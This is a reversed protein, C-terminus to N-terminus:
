EPTQEARVNIAAGDTLFGAGDVVVTEDGRLGDVIEVLGDQQIGTRVARAEASAGAVVYVVKGGPRQVVSMAPVLLAGERKALTVSGNVSAGPRWGGPNAFEAIVIIARAAGIMPRIEAIVGEVMRDPVAPSSLEVPLGPRLLEAVYEPFPLQARLVDNTAIRFLPTGVAAWDGVDILRTELRGALPAVIRTRAIDREAQGLATREGELQSRLARLEAEANDVVSQAVLQRELMHRNREVQRQQNEILAELRAIEALSRDHALRFDGADLEALLQGESVAQGEDAHIAVVRAAVEAGITPAQKAHVTGLTVEREHVTSREVAQATVPTARMGGAPFASSDEEEAGCGFLMVVALTLTALRSPSPHM